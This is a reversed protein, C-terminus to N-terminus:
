IVSEIFKKIKGDIMGSIRVRPFSAAIFGSTQHKRETAHSLIIMNILIVIGTSVFNKHDISLSTFVNVTMHHLEKSAYDFKKVSIISTVHYVYLNSLIFEM